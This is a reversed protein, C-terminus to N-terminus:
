RSLKKIGEVMRVAQVTAAVDHTRVLNVGNYVAISAAALSGILRDDPNKLDLIKGVFSKRSISICSPRGLTRLKELRNIVTCDWVYWPIEESISFGFGRGEKRFFGIGPDVVIKEQDIGAENALSLTEELASNIREMPSTIRSVNEHAMLIASASHKSIVKGMRPDHKLGSVDNVITAGAELAAEAPDSRTTDVSIQIEAANKIIKIATTLRNIEEEVSIETQIYPATSMGGVDIIDAGNEVMEVATEALHKSDTKVSKSYFSEPSVNIIGMIRVPYDDGLKLGSLDGYIM